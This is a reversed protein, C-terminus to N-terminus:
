WELNRLVVECWFWTAHVASPLLFWSDVIWRGWCSDVTQLAWIDGARWVPRRSQNPHGRQEYCWREVRIRKKEAYFGAKAWWIEDKRKSATSNVASCVDLLRWRRHVRRLTQWHSHYFNKINREKRENNKNTM